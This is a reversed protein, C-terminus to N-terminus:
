DAKVWKRGISDILFDEEVVEVTVKYKPTLLNEKYYFVPDEGTFDNLIDALRRKAHSTRNFEIEM